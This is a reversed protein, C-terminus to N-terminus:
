DFVPPNDNVASEPLRIHAGEEFMDAQCASVEWPSWPGDSIWRYRVQVRQGSIVWQMAPCGDEPGLGDTWVKPGIRDGCAACYRVGPIDEQIMWAEHQHNVSGNREQVRAVRGM